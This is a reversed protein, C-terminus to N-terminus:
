LSPGLCLSPFFTDERFLIGEDYLWFNKLLFGRVSVLSVNDQIDFKALVFDYEANTGKGYATYTLNLEKGFYWTDKWEVIIENKGDILTLNADTPLMEIDSRGNSPRFMFEM